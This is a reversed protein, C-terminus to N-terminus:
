RVKELRLLGAIEQVEGVEEPHRVLRSRGQDDQLFEILHLEMTEGTELEFETSSEVTGSQYTAIGQFNNPGKITGTKLVIAKGTIPALATLKLKNM